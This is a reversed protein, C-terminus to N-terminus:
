ASIEGVEPFIVKGLGLNILKVFIVKGQQYKDLDYSYELKTWLFLSLVGKMGFLFEEKANWDM